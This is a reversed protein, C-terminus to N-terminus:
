NANKIEQEYLSFVYLPSEGYLGTEDDDVLNILESIYLKNRAEEISISYKEAILEIVKIILLSKSLTHAM